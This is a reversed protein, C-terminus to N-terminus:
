PKRHVLRANPEPSLHQRRLPIVPPHLPPHIFSSIYLHISSHFPVLLLFPFTTVRLGAFLLLTFLRVSHLLTAKTPSTRIHRYTSLTTCTTYMRRLSPCAVILASISRITDAIRMFHAYLRVHLLFNFIPVPLWGGGHGPASPPSSDFSLLYFVAWLFIRAVVKFRRCGGASCRYHASVRTIAYCICYVKPRQTPRLFPRAAEAVRYDRRRGAARKTVWIRTAGRM